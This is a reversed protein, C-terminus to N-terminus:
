TDKLKNKLTNINSPLLNQPTVAWESEIEPFEAIVKARTKLSLLVKQLEIEVQDTENIYNTYKNHLNDLTKYETSTIGVLSSQYLNGFNNSPYRDTLEIKIRHKSYSFEFRFSTNVYGNSNEDNYAKKVAEPIKSKILGIAYTNRLQLLKREKERRKLVLTKSFQKAKELSIRNSM